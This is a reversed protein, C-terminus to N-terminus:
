RVYESPPVGLFIRLSPLWDVPWLFFPFRVKRRYLRNKVEKALRAPKRPLCFFSLLPFSCHFLSPFPCLRYFWYSGALLNATSGLLRILQFFFISFFILIMPLGPHKIHRRLLSFILSTLVDLFVMSSVPPSRAGCASRRPYHYLVRSHRGNRCSSRPSTSLCYCSTTSRHLASTHEAGVLCSSSLLLLLSRSFPQSTQFLKSSDTNIV